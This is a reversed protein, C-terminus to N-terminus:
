LGTTDLTFNRKVGLAGAPAELDGDIMSQCDELVSKAIAPVKIKVAGKAPAITGKRLRDIIATVLATEDDGKLAWQAPPKAKDAYDFQRIVDKLWDRVSVVGQDDAAAFLGPAKVHLRVLVAAALESRFVAGLTVGAPWAFNDMAGWPTALLNRVRLRCFRWFALQLAPSRRGAVVFRRALHWQRVPEKAEKIAPWTTFAAENAMTGDNPGQMSLHALLTRQSSGPQIGAWAPDSALGLVGFADHYAQREAPSGAILMAFYAPLEGTQPKEDKDFATLTFQFPGFSLLQSDWGNLADFRASVEFFAVARIVRYTAAQPVTLQGLPKGVLTDPTILASSPSYRGDVVLGGISGGRKKKLTVHARGLAEVIVTPGQSYDLSYYVKAKALHDFASWANTVILWTKAAAPDDFSGSDISPPKSFGCLIVPCRWKNDLWKQLIRATESNFVGSIPQTTPYIDAATKTLAVYSFPDGADAADVAVIPMAAYAQYERVAMATWYGFVGSTDASRGSTRALRFGLKQLNRQLDAVYTAPPDAPRAQGGWIKKADVDGLRLPYNPM